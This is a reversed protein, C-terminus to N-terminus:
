DELLGLEALIMERAMARFRRSFRLSAGSGGYNSGHGGVSYSNRGRTYTVEGRGASYGQGGDRAYSGSGRTSVGQQPVFNPRNDRDGPHPERGSAYAYPVSLNASFLLTIFLATKWVQINM